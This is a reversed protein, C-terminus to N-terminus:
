KRLEYTTAKLRKIESKLEQYQRLVDKLRISTKSESIPSSSYETIKYIKILNGYYRCYLFRNRPDTIYLGWESTTGDDYVEINYLLPILSIAPNRSNHVISENVLKVRCYYLIKKDM